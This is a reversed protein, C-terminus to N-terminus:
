GRPAAAATPNNPDGSAPSVAFTYFGEFAKGVDSEQLTINSRRHAAALQNLKQGVGGQRTGERGLMDTLKSKLKDVVGTAAATTLNV